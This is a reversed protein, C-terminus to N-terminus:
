IREENHSTSSRRETFIQRGHSIHEICHKQPAKPARFSLQMSRYFFSMLMKLNELIRM